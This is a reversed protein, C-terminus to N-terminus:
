LSIPPAAAWIGIFLSSFPLANIGKNGGFDVDNKFQPRGKYGEMQDLRDALQSLIFNLENLDLRNLHYIYRAEAM